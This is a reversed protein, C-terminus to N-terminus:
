SDLEGEEWIRGCKDRLPFFGGWLSPHKVCLERNKPQPKADNALFAYRAEQMDWAEPLYPPYFITEMEDGIAIIHERLTTKM